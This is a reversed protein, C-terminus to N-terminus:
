APFLEPYLCTALTELAEVLKPGPQSAVNPDVACIRDEQVATIVDWGPRAKVSEATVGFAEDALIIVEPDAAVIAEATLQPFAEGTQAAINDAKLLTYFDDIYSGPGASFLM